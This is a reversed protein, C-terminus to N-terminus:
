PEVVMNYIDCLNRIHNDIGFRRRVEEANLRATEKRREIDVIMDKMKNACDNVDLTNYLVALKGDDTVERMVGWDNVITPLGSSVAEVVAIGFTDRNTSYVFADINQLIAPVDCRGGVFFVSTDLLGNEKCYNVCSDFLEPEANTKKGVFFFRFGASGKGKLVQLAQCLFLQSRGSSFNGVMAMKVVGPFVSASKLFDPVEYGKDFKSFDIGNYVVHCRKRSVFLMHKMYWDHVYKSVFVSADACWLAIQAFVKDIFSPTFGHFTAVLKVGSFCTCVVGLFANLHTQTHLIDIREERLLRRLELVSRLKNRKPNIRFMPVGTERYCESLEGENRYILISDFPAIEWRQLTDLVLTETGGRNLSGVFFAVKNKKLEMGFLWNVAM